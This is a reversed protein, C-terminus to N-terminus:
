RGWRAGIIPANWSAEGSSKVRGSGGSLEVHDLRGVPLQMVVAAGYYLSTARADQRSFVQHIGFFPVLGLSVRKEPSLSLTASAEAGLISGPGGRTHIGFDTAGRVVLAPAVGYESTGYFSSVGGYVGYGPLPLPYYVEGQVGLHLSLREDLPKTVALDYAMSWQQTSFSNRDGAFRQPAFPDSTLAALPASLRPGSRLGGHFVSETPHGPGLRMVMPSVTTPACGVLWALAALAAAVAWRGPRTSPAEM